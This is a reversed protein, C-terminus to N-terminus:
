RIGGALFGNVIEAFVPHLAPAIPKRVPMEALEEALQLAEDEALEDLNQQECARCVDGANTCKACAHARCEACRVQENTFAGCNQCGETNGEYSRGYIM